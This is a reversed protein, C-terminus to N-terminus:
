GFGHTILHEVRAVSFLFHKWRSHAGGPSGREKQPHKKGLKSYNGIHVYHDTSFLFSLTLYRNRVCKCKNPSLLVEPHVHRTAGHAVGKSLYEKGTFFDPQKARGVSRLVVQPTVERHLWWACLPSVPSM